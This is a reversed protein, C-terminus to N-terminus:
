VSVELIVRRVEEKLEENEQYSAKLERVLDDLKNECDGVQYM